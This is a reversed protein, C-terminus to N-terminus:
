RNAKRLETSSPLFIIENLVLYRQITNQLEYLDGPWDYDLLKDMVSTSLIRERTSCGYYNYYYNALAPLNEKFHRLPKVNILMPNLLSFLESLGPGSHVFTRLDCHSTTIIRPFQLDTLGRKRTARTSKKLLLLLNEQWEIGMRNVDNLLLTGGDAQLLIGRIYRETEDDSFKDDKFSRFGIKSKQSMACDLTIMPYIHRNSLEHIMMAAVKKGTGAEGWIHVNANGAAVKKIQQLINQM